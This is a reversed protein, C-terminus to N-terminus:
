KKSGTKKTKHFVRQKIGFNLLINQTNFNRKILFGDSGGKYGGFFYGEANSYLISKKNLAYCLGLGINFSVYSKPYDNSYTYYSRTEYNWALGAKITPYFKEGINYNANANIPISIVNGDFHGIRPEYGKDFSVGTKFYKIRASLSFMEDFFYEALFGAQLSNKPENLKFSIITNNGIEAGFFWDKEQQANLNTVFFLIISLISYKKM